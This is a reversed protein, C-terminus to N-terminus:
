SYVEYKITIVSFKQESNELIPNKVHERESSMEATFLEYDESWIENDFIQEIIKYLKM